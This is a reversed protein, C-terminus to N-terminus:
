RASQTLHSIDRWQGSKYFFYYVTEGVYAGFSNKANVRVEVLWGFKDLKAGMIRAGTTYGPYPVGCNIVASYPDKLQGCIIARLDAEYNEPRPGYDANEMQEPTIGPTSSCGPFLFAALLVSFVLTRNKM